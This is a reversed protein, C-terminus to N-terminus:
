NLFFCISILKPVQLLFINFLIGRLLSYINNAPAFLHLSMAIMLLSINIASAFLYQECFCFVNIVSAYLYKWLINSASAFPYTECFCIKNSMDDSINGYLLPSMLYIAISSAYLYQWLFSMCITCLLQRSVVCLSSSLLSRTIRSFANM